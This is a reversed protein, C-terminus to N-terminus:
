PLPSYRNASSGRVFGYLTLGAARAADVALSTPASVGAVVPIGAFLAKQVIEFSIRGSVMLAAGPDGQRLRAGIVKDVANHRGVDERLVLLRGEADFVAAAHSGGSAEFGVQAGRMSAEFGYLVAPAIPAAAPLAPARRMVAEITEKGCVGCSSSQFLNRRLASLDISIGPMLRAEVRAGEQEDGLVEVRDIQEVSDIVGETVLFGLVLDSDHGPTRMVVAVPRGELRIELSEECVVRVPEWVPDGGSSEEGMRLRNREVTVQNM